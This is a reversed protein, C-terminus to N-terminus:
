QVAAREGFIATGVRVITAGLAVAKQWDGSMGMSLGPLGHREAMKKLLAFHLAAPEGVPPICMLGTIRLGRETCFNLLSPLHSLLVGAKQPEEGTNVQIFCAPFRHQKRMEIALADALKERDVTQICDFLGVAEAVKNTQLPGILHLEIDPWDPRLTCWHDRAEQVRNEGYLRHGAVLAALINEQPQTKTVAMLRAKGAHGYAVGGSAIEAKLGSLNDQIIDNV